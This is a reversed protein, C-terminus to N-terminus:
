LKPKRPEILCCSTKLSYNSHLVKLDRHAIGLQHLYDIALLIKHIIRAADKEGYKGIRVIEDFLEGGTVSYNFLIYLEMLLYIKGDIEFMQYLQIINDHKATRLIDVETQIM